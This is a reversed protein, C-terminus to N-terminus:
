SETKRITTSYTFQQGGTQRKGDTRGLTNRSAIVVRRGQAQRLAVREESSRGSRGHVYGKRRATNQDAKAAIDDVDLADVRRQPLVAVMEDLPNERLLLLGVAIPEFVRVLVVGGAPSRLLRHRLGKGGPNSLFEAPGGNRNVVAFTVLREDVEVGLRLRQKLLDAGRVNVERERVTVSLGHRYGGQDLV